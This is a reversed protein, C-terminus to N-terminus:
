AALRTRRFARSAGLSGVGLLLLLGSAPLPVPSPGSENFAIGDWDTVTPRDDADLEVTVIGTNRLGNEFSFPQSVNGVFSPMTWGISGGHGVIAVVGDEDKHREVIEAYAPLVRANLEDLSESTPKGALKAATDGSAWAQFLAGFEAGNPLGENGFSWERIQPVVIPSLGFEAATPAITLSTRQYSSVYITTLDIGNLRDALELAQEQGLTTLLPDVVEDPNATGANALSEAHRIFLYTAAAAPHSQSVISLGVLALALRHAM